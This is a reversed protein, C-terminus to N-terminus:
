KNEEDRARFEWDKRWYYYWAGYSNVSKKHAMNALAQDRGKETKYRKEVRWEGDLYDPRYNTQRAHWAERDGTWRGEILFRGRKNKKVNLRLLPARKRGARSL